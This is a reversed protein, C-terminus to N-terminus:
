LDKRIGDLIQQAAQAYPSSPHDQIMETLLLSAQSSLGMKLETRALELKAQKSIDEGYFNKIVETFAEKAQAYEKLAFLCKGMWYAPIGRSVDKSYDEELRAYALYAKGYQHQEFLDKAKQHLQDFNKNNGNENSSPQMQYAIPKEHGSGQKLNEVGSHIPSAVTPTIGLMLGQELLRIKEKQALVKTELEDLRAWMQAQKLELADKKQLSLPPAAEEESGKTKSGLFSRFTSCSSLVSVFVFLLYIKKIM